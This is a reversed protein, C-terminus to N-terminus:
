SRNMTTFYIIKYACIICKTIMINLFNDSHGKAFILSMSCRIDNTNKISGTYTFLQVVIANQLQYCDIAFPESYLCGNKKM